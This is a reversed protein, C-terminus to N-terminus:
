RKSNTDHQSTRPQEPLMELRGLLEIARDITDTKGKVCFEYLIEAMLPAEAILNANAEREIKEVHPNLDCIEDGDDGDEEVAYVGSVEGPHKGHESWRSIAWPGPTHNGRM